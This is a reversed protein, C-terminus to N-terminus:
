IIRIVSPEYCELRVSLSLLGDDWSGDQSEWEGSPLLLEVRGPKQACRIELTEMPDFGLNFIGLLNEGSRLQRHLMMICQNEAATFSLRRGNLRELIDLLWDKREDQAWAFLIKQTFATTCVTGGM